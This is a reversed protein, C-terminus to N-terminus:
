VHARGIKNFRHLREQDSTADDARLLVTTKGISARFFLPFVAGFVALDNGYFAQLVTQATRSLFEGAFDPVHAGRETGILELAQNAVAVGYEREVAVIREKFGDARKAPWRVMDKLVKAAEYDAESAAIKHFHAKLKSIYEGQRNLVVAAAWPHKGDVATKYWPGYLHANANVLLDVSKQLATFYDQVVGQEILWRPTVALGEGMVEFELRPRFWELTPFSLRLFGARYLTAPNQWRVTGMRARIKELSSEELSKVFGLLARLPFLCLYEVLGLRWRPADPATSELSFAAGAIVQQVQEAISLATEIEWLEGLRETYGHLLNLIRFAAGENEEELNIALAKFVVPLADEEVWNAQAVSEPQVSGGMQVATEIKFDGATYFDPHQYEVPYWKSDSPILQRAGSYGYLFGVTAIALDGLADSRLHKQVSSYDALTTLAKLAANAQQNAHNQFSADEWFRSRVTARKVWRELDVFISGALRTPDFFYFARQGLEVFSLITLGALLILLPVALRVPSFGIGYFALLCLSVFTTYALVRIYLRGVPERVLLNRLVGPAQAYAASSVATMAAYYLGILVGGIGSITSLFSAYSDRDDLHWLPFPVWRWTVTPLYLDAVLLLGATGLAFLLSPASIRVLDTLIRGATNAAVYKESGLLARKRVEFRVRQVLRLVKWFSRTQGARM